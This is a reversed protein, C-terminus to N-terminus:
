KSFKRRLGVLGLLGSGLLWVAAPIPVVNISTGSSPLVVDQFDADGYDFGVVGTNADGWSLASSGLPANANAQLTFTFLTGSGAALYEGSFDTLDMAGVRLEGATTAAGMPDWNHTLFAGQVVSSPVYTFVTPNYLIVASFATMTFDPSEAMNVSVNVTSGPAVNLTNPVLSISFSALAPSSVTLVMLVALGILLNKMANVERRSNICLM